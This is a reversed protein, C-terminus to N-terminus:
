HRIKTTTSSNESASRMSAKAKIGRRKILDNPRLTYDHQKGTGKDLRVLRARNGAAYEGRGGAATMADLVTMNARYPISAPKETAGVVRAQQSFTSNFSTVIVSVIPDKIYQSLALKLDQQRM